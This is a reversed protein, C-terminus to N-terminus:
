VGRGFRELPARTSVAVGAFLADLAVIAARLDAGARTTGLPILAGDDLIADDDLHTRDYAARLEQLSEITTLLFGCDSRLQGILARQEELRDM